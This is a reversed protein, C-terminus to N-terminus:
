IPLASGSTLGGPAAIELAFDIYTTSIGRAAIAIAPLAACRGTHRAPPWDGSRLLGVSQWQQSPIEVVQNQV